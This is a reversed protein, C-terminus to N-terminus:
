SGFSYPGFRGWAVVVAVAFVVVVVAARAFEGHRVHL